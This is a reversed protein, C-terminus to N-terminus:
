KDVALKRRNLCIAKIKSALKLVPSPLKNKSIAYNIYAFYLINIYIRTLLRRRDNTLKDIKQKALRPALYIIKNLLVNKIVDDQKNLYENDDALIKDAIVREHLGTGPFFTLSFMNIM